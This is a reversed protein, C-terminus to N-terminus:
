NSGQEQLIKDLIARAEQAKSGESDLVLYTELYDRAEANHGSAYNLKGLMYYPNAFNSDVSLAQKYFEIAKATDGKLYYAEAMSDYSNPNDPAMDIFKRFAAIARDYAELGMYCYGLMNFLGGNDPVISIAKEYAAIGPYYAHLQYYAFGMTSYASADDPDISISSKAESIVDLKELLEDANIGGLGFEYEDRAAAVERRLFEADGSKRFELLEKGFLAASIMDKHHTDAIVAEFGALAEEYHGTMSLRVSSQFVDFATWDYSLEEQLLDAYEDRVRQAANSFPYREVVSSFDAAAKGSDNQVLYVAALSFLYDPASEGAPDSKLSQEYFGIMREHDSMARYAAILRTKFVAQWEGVLGQHVDAALRDLATEYIRAAEPWKKEEEYCLGLRDYSFIEWVTDPHKNIMNQYILAARPYDKKVTFYVNAMAWKAAPVLHDDPNDKIFIEYTRLAEDFRGLTLLENAYEFVDEGKIEEDVAQILCVPLLFLMIILSLSGSKNM